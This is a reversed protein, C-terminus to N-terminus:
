FAGGEKSQKERIRVPLARPHRLGVERGAVASMAVIDVLDLLEHPVGAQLDTSARPAGCRRATLPIRTSLVSRFTESCYPMAADSTCWHMIYSWEFRFTASLARRIM